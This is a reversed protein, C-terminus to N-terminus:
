APFFNFFYCKQCIYKKSRVMRLASDSGARRFTREIFVLKNISIGM